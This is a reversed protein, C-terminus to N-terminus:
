GQSTREWWGEDVGDPIYDIGQEGFWRLLRHWRESTAGLDNSHQVSNTWVHTYRDGFPACVAYNAVADLMNLTLGHERDQEQILEAIDGLQLSTCFYDTDFVEQMYMALAEENYPNAELAKALWWTATDADSYNYDHANMALWQYTQSALAGIGPEYADRLNNGIRESVENILASLGRPNAAAIRGGEGRDFELLDPGFLRIDPHVHAMDRMIELVRDEECRRLAMNLAVKLEPVRRTGWARAVHQPLMDLWEEDWQELLDLGYSILLRDQEGEPDLMAFLAEARELGDDSPEQLASRLEGFRDDEERTM